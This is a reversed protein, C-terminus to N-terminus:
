GGSYAIKQPSPSSKVLFRGSSQNTVNKITRSMFVNSLHLSTGDMELEWRSNWRRFNLWITGSANACVIHQHPYSLERSAFYILLHSINFCTLGVIISQSSFMKRPHYEKAGQFRSQHTDGPCWSGTVSHWAHVLCISRLITSSFKTLESSNWSENKRENKPWFPVEVKAVIWPSRIYRVSLSVSCLYCSEM